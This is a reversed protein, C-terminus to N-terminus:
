KHAQICSHFEYFSVKITNANREQYINKKKKKWIELMDTNWIQIPLLDWCQCLLLLTEWTTSCFISWFLLTIIRRKKLNKLAHICAPLFGTNKRRVIGAIVGRHKVNTVHKKITCQQVLNQPFYNGRGDMINSINSSWYLLINKNCVQFPWMQLGLSSLIMNFPWCDTNLAILDM